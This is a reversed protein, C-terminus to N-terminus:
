FSRLRVPKPTLFSCFCLFMPQWPVFRPEIEVVSSWWGHRQCSGYQEQQGRAAQTPHACPWWQPWPPGALVLIITLTCFTFTYSIFLVAHFHYALMFMIFLMVHQFSHNPTSSLSSFLFKSLTEMIIVIVVNASIHLGHCCHCGKAWCQRGLLWQSMSPRSRTAGGHRVAAMTWRRWFAKVGNTWRAWIVHAVGALPRIIGSEDSSETLVGTKINLGIDCWIM